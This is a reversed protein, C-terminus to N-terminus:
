LNKKKQLWLWWFKLDYSIISNATEVHLVDAAVDVMWLRATMIGVVPKSVWSNWTRGVLSNVHETHIQSCVAVIESYLM